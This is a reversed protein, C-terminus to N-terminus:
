QLLQTWNKDWQTSKNLAKVVTKQPDLLFCKGPWQRLKNNTNEKKIKLDEDLKKQIDLLVDKELVNKQGTMQLEVNQVKFKNWIQEKM